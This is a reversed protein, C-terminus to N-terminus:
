RPALQGLQDSTQTYRYIADNLYRAVEVIDAESWELSARAQWRRVQAKLSAWDTQRRAPAKAQKARSKVPQRATARAM